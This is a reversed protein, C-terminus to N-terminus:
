VAGSVPSYLTDREVPTRGAEVILRRIEDVTMRQPTAAGASHTIREELVTGDLDDAGWALSVQALRAGLMIWFAKIHPINDLMLRAMAITKLDDVASTRKLHDLGTNGPHFPLPIFCLFGGTDDQLERLRALHDIREELTEVHGYLMTANTPIGLLHAERSVALWRKGSHKRPCVLGRVRPSFIEAGGGPLATLGADKLRRLVDGDSLGAADAMSAIEVATFAQLCVRPHRRRLEAIMSVYYELPLGPDCGGVIHLETAGDAEVSRAKEIVEDLTMTSAEPSGPARSFACFRCGNTCVNTYNIHRNVIYWAADGGRRSRAIGALRGLDHLDAERYLRLGEDRGIRGGAEVKAEIARLFAADM